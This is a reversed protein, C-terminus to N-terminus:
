WDLGAIGKAGWFSPRRFWRQQPAAQPPSTVRDQSVPDQRIREPGSTDASTEQIIRRKKYGEDLSRWNPRLIEVATRAYVRCDLAENKKGSPLEFRARAVGNITRTVCTESVLPRYWEFDRTAPLHCYGAGPLPLALQDYLSRKLVDGAVSFLNRIKDSRELWTAGSVTKGKFGYAHVIPRSNIFQYVQRTYHGGTDVCAADIKFDFGWPHRFASQLYTALETWITTQALNGRIIRYDISWSELNAAWAVTEVEIRDTQVDCGCTILRVDEHLLTESPSPTDAPYVERRAYLTEPKTAEAEPPAWSECMVTNVFGKIVEVGKKQAALWESAWQHLRSKYSHHCPLLSAFANLKYGRLHAEAKPPTAIWRGRTVMKVRETDSLRAACHPCEIMAEQPLHEGSTTKDWKIHIWDLVFLKHCNPCELHWMRNDTLALETEIRSNGRLTPTSVQVRFSDSFTESRRSVIALPDGEIGGSDLRDLEDCLVVKATHAALGAPSNSGVVM